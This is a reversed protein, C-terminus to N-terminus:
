SPGLKRHMSGRGSYGYNVLAELEGARFEEVIRRRASADTASSVARAKVGTSALLAAVTQSHEVSTAFILTPWNSDVHDKYAQVIRQTRGTDYAIRDEVSRPLWPTERSQRMEDESMSFRGGEITGHDARALIHIDQLERIVEQPDDNAFAGSDLRNSGYRNVLRATEAVDQGRYPTATLGILFPEHSRRWRTLGLDQMVSTFTPAVSRHAEDFVLLKFDALFEYSDPQRSIKAALTQITAVIVHMNGTPIPQPQGAWMRSIRLQTAHAYRPKGLGSAM